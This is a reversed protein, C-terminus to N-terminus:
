LSILTFTLVANCEPIILRYIPIVDGYIAERNVVKVYIAWRRGTSLNKTHLNEFGM